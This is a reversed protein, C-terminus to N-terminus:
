RVDTDHDFERISKQRMGYIRSFKGVINSPQAERYAAYQGFEFYLQHARSFSQRAEVITQQRPRRLFINPLDLVPPFERRDTELSPEVAVRDSPATIAADPPTPLGVMGLSQSNESNERFYAAFVDLAPLRERRAGAQRGFSTAFRVLECRGLRFLCKRALERLDNVIERYHAASDLLWFPYQDPMYPM